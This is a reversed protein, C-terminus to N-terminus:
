ASVQEPHFMVTTEFLEDVTGSFDGALTTFTKWREGCVAIEREVRSRFWASVHEDHSVSAFRAVSIRGLQGHKILWAVYSGVNYHSGAEVMAICLGVPDVLADLKVSNQHRLNSVLLLQREAEPIRLAAAITASDLNWTVRGLVQELLDLPTNPHRVLMRGVTVVAHQAKASCTRSWIDRMQEPTAESVTRAFNEVEGAISLASFMAEMQEIIRTSPSASGIREATEKLEIIFEAPVPRRLSLTTIQHTLSAVESMETWTHNGPRRELRSALDAFREAAADVILRAARDDLDRDAYVCALDMVRQSRSEFRDSAAIEVARSAAADDLSGLMSSYEYRRSRTGEGGTYAEVITALAQDKIKDEVSDNHWLEYSPRALNRKAIMAYADSPLGEVKAITELVSVRREKAVFGVVQEPDRGPRSLWACLVKASTVKSLGADVEPSLNPQNALAVLSAEDKDRLADALLHRQADPGIEGSLLMGRLRASM